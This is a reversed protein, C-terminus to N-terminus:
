LLTLTKKAAHKESIDATMDSPTKRLALITSLLRVSIIRISINQAAASFYRYRRGAFKAGPNAWISAHMSQLWDAPAGGFVM